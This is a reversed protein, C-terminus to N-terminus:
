PLLAKEQIVDALTKAFLRGGARSFHADDIHLAPDEPPIVSDVTVNHMGADLASQRVRAALSDQRDVQRLSWHPTVVLTEAGHAEAMGKISILSNHFAWYGELPDESPTATRWIQKVLDYEIGRARDILVATGTVAASAMMWKPIYHQVSRRSADWHGLRHSYDPRFGELGLGAWLDNHGAYVIVLDPQFHVGLLAFQVVNFPLSAANMGLNM